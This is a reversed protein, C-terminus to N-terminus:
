PLCALGQSVPEGLGFNVFPKGIAESATWTFKAQGTITIPLDDDCDFYFYWKNETSSAGGVKTLPASLSPSGNIFLNTIETTATSSAAGQKTAGQLEIGLVRPNQNLESNTRSVEKAVDGNLVLSVTGGTSGVYPTYILTFDVTQPANAVVPPATKTKTDVSAPTADADVELEYLDPKSSSQAFFRAYM